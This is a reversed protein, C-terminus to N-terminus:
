FDSGNARKLESWRRLEASFADAGALEEAAGELLSAAQRFPEAHDGQITACRALVTTEYLIESAEQYLSLIPDPTVRGGLRERAADNLEGRLESALVLPQDLLSPPKGAAVEALAWALQRQVIHVRRKFVGRYAFSTLMWNVIMAALGGFVVAALRLGFNQQPTNLEMEVMLVMYLASFAAVINAGGLKLAGSLYVSLGVSLGLILAGNLGKLLGLSEPAMNSLLLLLFAIAGGLISGVMQEAARKIGTVVTPSTCVSAVFTASIPDNVKALLVFVLALASSLGVKSAYIPWNTLSSVPPKGSTSM